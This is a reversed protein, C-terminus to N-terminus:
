RKGQKPAKAAKSADLNAYKRRFRDIRGATDVFRQKGTYFPHCASCIEVAVEPGKTSIAKIEYGCACRITAEFTKPHGEKKM